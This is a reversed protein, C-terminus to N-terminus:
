KQKKAGNNANYRPLRAGCKDCIEADVPNGFGCFVCRAVRTRVEGPRLIPPDYSQSSDTDKVRITRDPKFLKKGCNECKEADGPNEHWCYYCRIINEEASAEDSAPEVPEFLTAVEHVFGGVTIGRLGPHRRAGNCNSCTTAYWPNLHGCDPCAVPAFEDEAFINGDTRDAQLRYGCEECLSFEEDNYHGCIPCKQMGEWGDFYETM